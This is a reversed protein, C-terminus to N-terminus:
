EREIAYIKWASFSDPEHILHLRLLGRKGLLVEAYTLAPNQPPASPVFHTCKAPAAGESEMFRRLYATDTLEGALFRKSLFRRAANDDSSAVATIFRSVIGAADECVTYFPRTPPLRLTLAPARYATYGIIPLFATTM